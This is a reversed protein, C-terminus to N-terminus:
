NKLYDLIAEKAIIDDKIERLRYRSESVSADKYITRGDIVLEHKIKEHYLRTLQSQIQDKTM